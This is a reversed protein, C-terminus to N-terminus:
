KKYDDSITTGNCRFFSSQPLVYVTFVFYQKKSGENHYPNEDLLLRECGANENLFSKKQQMWLSM